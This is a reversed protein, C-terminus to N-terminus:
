SWISSDSKDSLKGSHSIPERGTVVKTGDTSPNYQELLWSCQELQWSYNHVLERIERGQVLTNHLINRM